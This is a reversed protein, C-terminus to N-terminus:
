RNIEALKIVRDMRGALEMNHTAILAAARNARLTDTMVSFVHDSTEPDLNGTPEDALILAPNAALARAIAVRQQEGGSLESPRHSTRESLKVQALLEGARRAAETKSAGGLLLPMMVNEEASCEPLLHHFQYIFGIKERRTRTRAADGMTSCEQGAIHVTGGDPNDLLGAIQLLTSKGCGSPGVLAVVEGPKLSLSVGRLVHLAQEGQRYTRTIANLVLVDNM